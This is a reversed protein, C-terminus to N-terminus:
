EIKGGLADAVLHIPAIIRGNKVTGACISNGNVKITIKASKLKYVEVISKTIEEACKRRYNHSKLLALKRQNDMFGCEVLIAPM